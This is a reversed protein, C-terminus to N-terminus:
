ERKPDEYMALGIIRIQLHERYIVRTAEIGNVGPMSIGMLIVDPRTKHVISLAAAGNKAVLLRYEVSRELLQFFMLLNTLNGDALLVAEKAM